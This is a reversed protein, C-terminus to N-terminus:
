FRDRLNSILPRFTLIIKVAKSVISLKTLFDNVDTDPLWSDLIIIDFSHKLVKELAEEEGQATEVKYGTKVLISNFSRLVSADSNVILMTKNLIILDREELISLHPGM